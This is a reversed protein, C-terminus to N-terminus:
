IVVAGHDMRVPIEAWAEDMCTLAGQRVLEQSKQSRCGMVSDQTSQERGMDWSVTHICQSPSHYVLQQLARTVHRIPPDSGHSPYEM